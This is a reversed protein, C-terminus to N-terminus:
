EQLKRLINLHATITAPWQKPQVFNNTSHCISEFPRLASTPTPVMDLDMVCSAGGLSTGIVAKM